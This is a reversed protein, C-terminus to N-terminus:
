VSCSECEEVELSRSRVYYISKIGEEWARIYFDLIKSMSHTPDIYIDFSQSQDIHRQRVGAARISYKQNIVHAKKYLHENERTIGPAIRPLMEGKKEEIWYSSLVPEIGETTGAITATSGTPAVAMLYGNRIGYKKVDEKLLIWEKSNYGRQEFYEGTDWSSGKFVPYFGKEKAIQNSAKIAYFNIKEYLNNAFELHNNSEWDIGEKVLIHHYGSTGLGLARYKENTKKAFLIPYYNLDIVNDMARVLTMVVEQLEKENKLDIHGLVISALNCVVFDGPHIKQIVDEEQDLFSEQIKMPSMNQMIETCLNSSYIMGMHSNPNLNNAHDRNFTFPTGTEAQSKIILRLIEKIPVSRKTIREDEVCDMYRKEWELGYSDELSYNKIKKIEHPCMMHWIAERNNKALKWFLDPYCLGPFVDHAKQRDDGNNTKLQLFELLDKHWVDLWVSVSGNRVGLQDVAVATDNTIKIWPVVGGSAGKFGRIDSGRSRVKGFYLGMGGGFKSVKAFNDISKYIGDLSDEVIDIFCSSLQHFPKRANSMTPTAMTGKLNSLVDYIRKVWNLRNAKDEKIGLHMAIGMFMEQPLELLSRDFDVILYRRIILELGAYSFLKDRKPDIYTELIEIEKEDYCKLIYDGYLGKKTLFKINEVLNTYKKINRNKEVKRYLSLLLIRSSIYQWHSHDKSTFEVTRKAIFDLTFKDQSYLEKESELLELFKEEHDKYGEFIFDLDEKKFIEAEKM